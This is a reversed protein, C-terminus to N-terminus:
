DDLKFTVLQEVHTAVAVGARTAPQFRWTSLTAIAARDLRAFGSSTVIEVSDVAGDALVHLRCLVRGEERRRVCAQPYEPRPTAIAVVPTRAVEESSAGRPGDGGASAAGSPGGALGGAQSGGDASIPTGNASTDHARNSSKGSSSKAGHAVRLNTFASSDRVFPMERATVEPSPESTEDLTALEDAYPDSAVSPSFSVIEDSASVESEHFSRDVRPLEPLADPTALARSGSTRLDLTFTIEDGGGAAGAGFGASDDSRAMVITTAALGIAHLAIAASWGVRRGGWCAVRRGLNELSTRLRLFM